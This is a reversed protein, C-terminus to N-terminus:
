RKSVRNTKRDASIYINKHPIHIKNSTHIASTSKSTSTTSSSISLDEITVLKYIQDLNEITYKTITSMKNYCNLEKSM